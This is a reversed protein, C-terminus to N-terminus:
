HLEAALDVFAEVRGLGPVRRVAEDEVAVAAVDGGVAEVILSEGCEAEVEELGHEDVDVGHRDLMDEVVGGEVERCGVV